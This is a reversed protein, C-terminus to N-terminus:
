RILLTLFHPVDRRDGTKDAELLGPAANLFHRCLIILDDAAEPLDEPTLMDWTASFGLLGLCSIRLGTELLPVHEPEKVIAHGFALQRSRAGTDIYTEIIWTGISLRYRWETPLDWGDFDGLGQGALKEKLLKRFSQRPIKPTLQPYGGLKPDLFYGRWRTALEEALADEEPSTLKQGMLFGFGRKLRARFMSRRQDQTLYEAVAVESVALRGRVKRALRLNQDVERDLDALAWQYCRSLFEARAPALSDWIEKYNKGKAEM